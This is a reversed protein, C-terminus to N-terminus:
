LATTPQPTLHTNKKLSTPKNNAVAAVQTPYAGYTTEATITSNNPDNPNNGYTFDVKGTKLDYAYLIGSYGAAYLHGYGSGVPNTLGTSGTYYNWTNEGPATWIYDGTLPDYGSWQMTEKYWTTWVMSESDAPGICVTLNNEPASYTRDWM